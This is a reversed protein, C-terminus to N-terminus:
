KRYIDSIYKLLARLDQSSKGGFTCNSVFRNKFYVLGQRCYVAVFYITTTDNSIISSEKTNLVFLHYKIEKLYHIIKDIFQTKYVFTVERDRNLSCTNYFAILLYKIRIEEKNVFKIFIDNLSKNSRSSVERVIIPQQEVGGKRVLRALHFRYVVGVIVLAAAKTLVSPKFFHTMQTTTTSCLHDCRMSPDIFFTDM